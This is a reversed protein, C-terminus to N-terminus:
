SLRNSIVGNTICRNTFGTVASVGALKRYCVFGDHIVPLSHFCSALLARQPGGRGDFPDAVPAPAIDADLEARGLRPLPDDEHAAIQRPLRANRGRDGIADLHRPPGHEAVAPRDTSMTSCTM